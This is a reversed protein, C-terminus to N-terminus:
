CMSFGESGLRKKGCQDSAPTTKIHHVYEIGLAAKGSQAESSLM